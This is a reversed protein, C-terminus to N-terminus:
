RTLMISEVWNPGRGAACHGLARLAGTGADIAYLALRHSGQGAAILFRGDPTVHFGRPQAETPVHGILALGGNAADVRFAALTDSRRESSYLFRGDPTLHIDSAWPKGAFGPPLSAITQLPRLTGASADLALVDIAADLENLLYVFRADPSFVFHRPSAAPHPELTPPQNPRLEGSAADFRLQM